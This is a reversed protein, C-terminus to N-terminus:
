MMVIRSGEIINYDALMQANNGKTKIEDLDEHDDEVSIIHFLRIKTPAYNFLPCIYNLLVKSGIQPSVIIGINKGTGLQASQDNSLIEITIPNLDPVEESVGEENNKHIMFINIEPAGGFTHILKQWVQQPVIIFDEEQKLNDKLKMYNWDRFM